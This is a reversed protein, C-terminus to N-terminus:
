RCAGAGQRRVDRARGRAWRPALRGAGPPRGRRVALPTGREAADPTNQIATMVVRTFKEVSVHAPLAAKFEPAMQTLNQRIVAVPNANAQTAM